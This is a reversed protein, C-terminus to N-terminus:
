RSPIILTPNPVVADVQVLEPHDKLFSSSIGILTPLVSLDQQYKYRYVLEGVENRNWSSGTFRSHFDLAWGADWSGKLHRPHQGSLFANIPDVVSSPPGHSLFEHSIPKSKKQSKLNRLAKKAAITIYEKEGKDEAIKELITSARDDGIKGLASIAYQRVQPKKERRLLDILPKTAQTEGIKGLASAALRRVNGNTHTLYEILEPVASITKEKGYVVIKSLQKDVSAYSNAKRSTFPNAIIM